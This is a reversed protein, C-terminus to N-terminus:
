RAHLHAISQLHPLDPRHWLAPVARLEVTNGRELEQWMTSYRLGTNPHRQYPIIDALPALVHANYIIEPRPLIVDGFQGCYDGYLLIDIDLQRSSPGCTDATRGFRQEIRRLVSRLEPLPLWTFVQCCLNIFPPGSFGVAASWYFKSCLNIGLLAHLQDLGLAINERPNINSGISLCVSTPAINM